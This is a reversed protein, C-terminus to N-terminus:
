RRGVRKQRTERVISVVPLRSRLRLGYYRNGFKRVESLEKERFEDLEGLFGDQSTSSFGMRKCWRGYDEFLDNAGLGANEDAPDTCDHVYDHVKGKKAPEIIEAPTATAVTSAATTTVSGADARRKARASEILAVVITPGFGSLGEVLLAFFVPWGRAVSEVSVFGFTLWAITEAQPNVAIMAGHNRGETVQKDLESLRMELQAAEKAVGLEGRLTAVEGCDDLTRRDPQMCNNSVTTVTGLVKTTGAVVVPRALRGSITAELESVSRHKKLWDLKARIKEVDSKADKYTEVVAERSGIVSGREQGAFGIASYMGFILAGAWLVSVVSAIAKWRACWLMVVCPLLASKFIDIVISVGGVVRGSEVSSAGSSNYSYNMWISVAMMAVTAVGIVGAMIWLGSSSAEPNKQMNNNM